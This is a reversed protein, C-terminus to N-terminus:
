YQCLGNETRCLEHSHTRVCARNEKRLEAGCKACRITHNTRKTVMNCEKTYGNAERVTHKSGELTFVLGCAVKELEAYCGPTATCAQVSQPIGAGIIGMIVLTTIFRKMFKM